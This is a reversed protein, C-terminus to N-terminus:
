SVGKFSFLSMPCIRGRAECESKLEKYWSAPFVGTRKAARISYEKVSCISQIRDSGILDVIDNVTPTPNTKMDM